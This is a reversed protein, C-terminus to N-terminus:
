LLSTCLLITNVAYFKCYIYWLSLSILGNTLPMFDYLKYM